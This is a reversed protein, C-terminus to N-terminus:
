CDGDYQPVPPWLQEGHGVPSEHLEPMQTVGPASPPQAVASIGHECGESQQLSTQSMDPVDGKQPQMLGPLEKAQVELTFQQMPLQTPGVPEPCQQKGEPPPEHEPEIAVVQQEPRQELLPIQQSPVPALQVDPFLQQEPVQL